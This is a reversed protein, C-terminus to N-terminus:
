KLKSFNLVAFLKILASINEEQVAKTRFLDEKTEALSRRTGNRKHM